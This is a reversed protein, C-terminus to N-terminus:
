IKSLMRGSASSSLPLNLSAGVQNLLSKLVNKSESYDKYRTVKFENQMVDSLNGLGDVLGLKLATQGSWFDGTFLTKVDAHLKGQRGQLVIQNFNGHVEDIVSHIKDLDEKTQPLFPDLRDKHDGSTIVRRDVGIKKILDAYGFGEMIVGISGTITNPNVYIKDASVAVLYAGSALLDEGVVVVRKNYKKKLKIIEDHIISAQVPTGGGSNIDLIVGKTQTDSFAQKLVPIVEEASFGEGPGIMGELRVLSVYPGGEIGGPIRSHGNMGGFLMTLIFVFLGFGAFFRVNKWRRDRSREKILERVLDANLDASTHSESM